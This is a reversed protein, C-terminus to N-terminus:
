TLGHLDWKNPEDRDRSLIWRVEVLRQFSWTKSLLLSHTLITGEDLFGQMESGFCEHMDLCVSNWEPSRKMFGLSPSLKTLFESLKKLSYAYLQLSRSVAIDWTEPWNRARVSLVFVTFNGRSPVCSSIKCICLSGGGIKELLSSKQVMFLNNCNPM